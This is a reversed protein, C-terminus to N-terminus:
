LFGGDIECDLDRAAVAVDIEAYGSWRVRSVFRRDLLVLELDLDIGRRVSMAIMDISIGIM